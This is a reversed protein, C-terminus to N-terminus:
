IHILSLPHGSRARAVALIRVEAGAARLSEATKIVRSDAHADNYVLLAVRPAHGDVRPLRPRDAM